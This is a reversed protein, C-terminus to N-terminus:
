LKKRVTEETTNVKCYQKEQLWYGYTWNRQQSKCVTKVETYGSPKAIVM